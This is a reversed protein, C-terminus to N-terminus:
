GKWGAVQIIERQPLKLCTLKGGFVCGTDIGIRDDAMLVQRLPTHGFVVPKPYKGIFKFFEQRIWILDQLDQETVPVLPRIGAHVFLYDPTEYMPQLRRFFALHAAPIHDPDGGYSALTARGGNELYIEEDEGALFDLLMREHNGLLFVCRFPLGLLRDVVERSQPGRDIYDGVFVVEDDSRPAIKTLLRELPGLCGHIDGVVYTVPGQDAAKEHSNTLWRRMQM